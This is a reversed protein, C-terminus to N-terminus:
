GVDIRSNAIAKTQVNDKGDEMEQKTDARGPTGKNNGRADKEKGAEMSPSFSIAFRLTLGRTRGWRGPAVEGIMHTGAGNTRM